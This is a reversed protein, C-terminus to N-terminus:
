ENLSPLPVAVALEAAPAVAAFPVKVFLGVHDVDPAGVDRPDFGDIAIALPCVPATDRVPLTVTLSKEVPVPDYLRLRVPEDCLIVLATVKAFVPDNVKPLAAVSAKVNLPPKVAVAGLEILKAPNNVLM